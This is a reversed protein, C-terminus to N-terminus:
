DASAARWSARWRNSASTGDRPHLSGIVIDAAAGDNLPCANGATIWGARAFYRSSAAAGPAGTDYRRLPGDDKSMVTGDKLTVPIIEREGFTNEQHAVALEQSRVAFEDMELRSVKEFEAVNEATQGMAIYIDPLGLAPRGRGRRHTESRKATREM